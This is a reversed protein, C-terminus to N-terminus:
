GAAPTGAFAAPDGREPILPGKWSMVEALEDCVRKWEGPEWGEAAGGITIDTKLWVLGPLRDLGMGRVATRDPDVYTLFRRSLPGLFTRAGEADSTVLWAVRCDAERFVALIRDATDLVWSSESTYPDICVLLLHFNTLWESVSRREGEVTTLELDGSPDRAM